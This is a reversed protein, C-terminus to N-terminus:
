IFSPVTSYHSIRWIGNSADLEPLITTEPYEDGNSDPCDLEDSGDDCDTQLLFFYDNSNNSANTMLAMIIM